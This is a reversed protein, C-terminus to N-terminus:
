IFIPKEFNPSLTTKMKEVALIGRDSIHITDNNVYLNIHQNVVDHAMQQAHSLIFDSYYRKHEHAYKISKQILNNLENKLKSDLDRRIAIGGLPIPLQEKEEWHNGLDLLCHLGKLKYTFRNEHIIVGADVQGDLIAQEIESFLMTTIKKVGPFAYQLLFNATTSIGPIAIHLDNVENLEFNRKSILLPGVGFGLASGSRLMQYSHAVHFYHAYSIKIIPYIEDSAWQNLTQIDEFHFRFEFPKIDILHNFIADFAFTDNPCPSIAIDMTM